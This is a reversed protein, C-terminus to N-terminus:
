IARFFQDGSPAAGGSTRGTPTGAPRPACILLSTTPVHPLKRRQYWVLAATALLELAILAGGIASVAGLVRVVAPTLIAIVTSALAPAPSDASPDPADGEPVM